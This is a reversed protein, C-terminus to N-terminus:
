LKQSLYPQTKIIIIFLLRIYPLIPGYMLSKNSSNNNKNNNNNSNNNNNNNNNNYFDILCHIIFCPM